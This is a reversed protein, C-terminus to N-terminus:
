APTPQPETELEDLALLERYTLTWVNSEFVQGFASLLLLPIAILLILLLGGTIGAVIWPVPGPFILSAIGGVTVTPLGVVAVAAMLILLVVPFALLALGLQIGIMLLWMLGADKWHRRVLDVGRRISDTVGLGSLACARWFFPSLLSLGAIVIVLLFISLFTVGTASVVGLVGLAVVGRDFMWASFVALAGVVLMALLIAVAVPLGVLLDILFTRWAARSWGMRFGERVSRQEGSEEFDDVMRILATRAVYKAIVGLVILALIILAVAAGVVILTRVLEPSPEIHPWDESRVEYRAQSGSPGGGGGGGRGGATLALIIGFVWLARYRWVIHWARKLVKVHDM